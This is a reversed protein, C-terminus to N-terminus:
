LYDSLKVPKAQKKYYEFLDLGWKIARPDTSQLDADMYAISPARAKLGLSVFSESVTFAVTPTKKTVYAKFNRLNGIKKYQEKIKKPSHQLHELIEKSSIIQCDVGKTVTAFLLRSYDDHYIPTIGYFTKEITSLLEVFAEHSKIPDTETNEILESNNLEGLRVLLFDPIGSMEHTEWFEKFREYISYFELSEKIRNRVAQSYPTLRFDGEVREVLGMEELEKAKASTNPANANVTRRLDALRMPKDRLADLIALRLKSDYLRRITLEALEYNKLFESSSSM